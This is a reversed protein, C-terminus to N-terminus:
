REGRTVGTVADVLELVRDELEAPPVRGKTLFLTEGLRLDEREERTVEAASYVVVPTSALRGDQRLESVVDVGAGDPLQLDLVIVGPLMERACQVAEAATQSHAVQLGHSRLLAIIVSALHADDEVVLVSTERRRGEVVRAVTSALREDTVPKVLWSDTASAVLPDAAPGLGSMVVIPIHRTRDEERLRSVVDAGSTEPMLLDTLVAAPRHALAGDVATAGDTVGLPRYGHQRLMESLTEVVGMDDDCVLILPADDDVKAGRDTLSPTTSPIDFSVVTGVDPTSEAWIRGGHREVIGKSIALGLGSGGKLRTDSSDVQEFREFIRELKESPIGRGEDAVRFRVRADHEASSVRVVGGAASFKVANGILNTLTQVIRDSDGVVRGGTAVTELRVGSAQSLGELQGVATRILDTADHEVFNMPMTGSEIREMDLIDDILRTLRESSDLAIAAMRGAPPSLEGLSGGSLLGLSGRISTLPTRLEHSVVSLFENKIRDVERRQTIDRFAVVAGRITPGDLLPSCTIEVPIHSGDARVYTDEESSTVVGDRISETIYCGQWPHPSGLETPAHFAQHARSGTLEDVPYCLLAAGAPNVFTIRGDADVGYIGDAVSTLLVENQRALRRLDTTQEQVRRELGRRLTDNDLGLIIQRAGASFLLILWMATQAPNIAAEEGATNRVLAALLLVSFILVTGLVDSTGLSTTEEPSEVSPFWAAMSLMLYGLIWGLDVPSGFDFTGRAALMVFAVDSCAYLVFGCGILTLPVRDGRSRAVLLTAVTVLAVDLLPFLLAEFRGGASAGQLVQSFVLVSVMVLAAGGVVLGDLVLLVLEMGRRRLAPFSLVGAIILLIAVVLSSEAVWSPSTVPDAGVIASWGNGALAAVAGLTFCAWARRRRSDTSLHWRVASSIGALVGGFLLGLGSVGSRVDQPADSALVVIFALGLVALVAAVWLRRRRWRAALAADPNEAAPTTEGTDAPEHSLEWAEVAAHPAGSVGQTIAGV